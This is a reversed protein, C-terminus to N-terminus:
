LIYRKIRENVDAKRVFEPRRAVNRVTGVSLNRQEMTKFRIIYHHKGTGFQIQDDHAVCLFRRYAEELATSNKTAQTGKFSKLSSVSCLSYQKHVWDPYYFLTIVM